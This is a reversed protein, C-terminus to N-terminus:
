SPVRILHMLAIYIALKTYRQMILMISKLFTFIVESSQPKTSDQRPTESTSTSSGEFLEVKHTEPQPVFRTFTLPQTRSSKSPLIHLSSKEKRNAKSAAADEEQDERTIEVKNLIEM